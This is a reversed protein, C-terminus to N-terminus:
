KKAQRYGTLVLHYTLDQQMVHPAPWPVARLWAKEDDTAARGEDSEALWRDVGLVSARTSVIEVGRVQEGPPSFRPGIGSLAWAPNVNLGKCIRVLSETQPAQKGNLIGSITNEGLGIEIALDRQKIGRQELADRLRAGIAPDIVTDQKPKVRM